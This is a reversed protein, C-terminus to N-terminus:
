APGFGYAALVAKGQPSTVASIFNAADGAAGDALPAILYANIVKDSGAIPVETVQDKAAKADTVYVIGADAEGSTVKGVVDTVSSEESVPALAINLLDTLKKTANGCPVGVACTVLKHGKLSALSTIHLPNDPAVILTLRNTAFRVPDGAVLGGKIARAMTTEDATALVDARAGEALQDVLAGSGAFNFEPKPSAPQTKAIDAFAGALSAAAFIRVTPSAPAATSGPGGACGTVWLTLSVVGAVLALLGTRARM